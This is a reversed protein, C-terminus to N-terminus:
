LFSFFFEVMNNWNLHLSVIYFTFKKSCSWVQNSQITHGSVDTYLTPVVQFIFHRNPYFAQSSTSNGLNNGGLFFFHYFAVASASTRFFLRSSISTCGAQHKKHGNCVSHLSHTQYELMCLTICLLPWLPLCTLRWAWCIPLNFWSALLFNGMLLILLVLFINELLWGILKTVQRYWM